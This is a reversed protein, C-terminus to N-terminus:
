REPYQDRYQGEVIFVIPLSAACELYLRMHYALFRSDSVDALTM